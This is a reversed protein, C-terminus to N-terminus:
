PAAGASMAAAQPTEQPRNQRAWCAALHGDEIQELPPVLRACPAFREPCRPHFACGTPMETLHPVAGGVTPLRRVSPTELSPTAALLGVSYPHSPADFLRLATAEEVVRGGYMVAVRDTLEAVVGFDHTIIVVALDLEQRLRRLLDLVQAQITVDLATTPEDAILVQPDCSLAMAIMVRQRMGGSLEHPYAAARKDPAPIGVLSLLEISRARAVARSLGLHRRLPGGIQEGVTMIPNLATMPEQFIMGIRRGRIADLSQRPLALLDQGDFMVRGATVTAAEPLLGLAALATLSKGSGSEGVLGLCEGAHLDLDVGRLAQVPGNKANFSVQLDRISLLPTM